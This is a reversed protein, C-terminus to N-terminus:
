RRLPQLRERLVHCGGDPSRVLWLAVGCFPGSNALLQGDNVMIEELCPGLRRWVRWIRTKKRPVSSSPRLRMLGIWARPLPVALVIQRGRHRRRSMSSVTAMKDVIRHWLRDQNPPTLPHLTIRRSGGGRRPKRKSLGRLRLNRFQSIQRALRRKFIRIDTHKSAQLSPEFM